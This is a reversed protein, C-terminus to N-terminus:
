HQLYGLTVPLFGGQGSIWVCSHESHSNEKHRCGAQCCRATETDLIARSIGDGGSLSCELFCRPGEPQSPHEPGHASCERSKGCPFWRQVNTLTVSLQGAAMGLM